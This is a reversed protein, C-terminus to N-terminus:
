SLLRLVEKANERGKDCGLLAVQGDSQTALGVPSRMRRAINLTWAWGRVCMIVVDGRGIRAAIPVDKHLFVFHLAAPLSRGFVNVVPHTNGCLCM